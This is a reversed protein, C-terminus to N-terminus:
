SAWYELIWRAKPYQLRKYGSTAAQLRKYGSPRLRRGSTAAVYKRGQEHFFKFCNDKRCLCGELGAIVRRRLLCEINGAIKIRQDCNEAAKKFTM